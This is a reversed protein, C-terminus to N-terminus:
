NENRGGHTLPFLQVSLSYIEKPSKTELVMSIEDIAEAIMKKALPIKSPSIALTVSQFERLQLPTNEVRESALALTQRHFRQIAASPIESLVEIPDGVQRFKPTLELLGLRVLRECAQRAELQTIGLKESIWRPDSSAQNLRTLSLIAFHYWDAILRFQDEALNRRQSSGEKMELRSKYASARLRQREEPSAGLVGFIKDAMKNSLARKGSMLQSLQAPSMKLHRAFARLSFSPNREKREKYESELWLTFDNM